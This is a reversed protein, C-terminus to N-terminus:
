QIPKKTACLQESDFLGGHVAAFRGNALPFVFFSRDAQVLLSLISYLSEFPPILKYIRNEIRYKPSIETRARGTTLSLEFPM